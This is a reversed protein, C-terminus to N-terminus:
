KGSKKMREDACILIDTLFDIKDAPWDKIIEFIEVNIPIDSVTTEDSILLAIDVHLIDSIQSLRPLSVKASGREIQRVYSETIDLEESLTAQTMSLKKRYCAIRRGIAKYNIMTMVSNLIVTM